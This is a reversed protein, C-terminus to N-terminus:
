LRPIGGQQPIECDALAHPQLKAALEEIDQVVGIEARRHCVQRGAVEPHYEPGAIRRANPLDRFFEDELSLPADNVCVVCFDRSQNQIMTTLKMHAVCTAAILSIPSRNPATAMANMGMIRLTPINRGISQRSFRFRPAAKWQCQASALCKRTAPIKPGKTM